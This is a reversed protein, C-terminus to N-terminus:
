SELISLKHLYKSYKVLHDKKCFLSQNKVKTNEVKHSPQLVCVSLFVFHPIGLEHYVAADASKGSKMLTHM